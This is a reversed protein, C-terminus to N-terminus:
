DAALYYTTLSLKLNLVDGKSTALDVSSIDMIRGYSELKKVLDLLQSINGSVDISVNLTQLSRKIGYPNKLLQVDGATIAQAPSGVTLNGILTGSSKVLQEFLKETRVQREELPLAQDLHAIDDSNTKLQDSLQKLAAQDESIKQEQGKVQALQDQKQKVAAMKPAILFFYLLVGVILLLVIEFIAGQSGHFEITQLNLKDNKPTIDM